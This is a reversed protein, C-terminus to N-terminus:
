SAWGSALHLDVIAVLQEYEGCVECGGIGPCRDGDELQRERHDRNKLAQRFAAMVEDPLDVSTRPIRSLRKVM